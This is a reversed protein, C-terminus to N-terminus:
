STKDRNVTKAQRTIGDGKAVSACSKEGEEITQHINVVSQTEPIESLPPTGLNVIIESFFNNRSLFLFKM